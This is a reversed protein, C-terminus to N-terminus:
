KWDRRSASTTREVIGATSAPTPAARRSVPLVRLMWDAMPAMMPAAVPAVAYVPPKRFCAGCGAFLDNFCCQARADLGSGFHFGVVALVIGAGRRMKM